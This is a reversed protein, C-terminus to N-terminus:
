GGLIAPLLNGRNFLFLSGVMLSFVATMLGLALFVRSNKKVKAYGLVSFISVLTNSIMLGLVFIVLLIIAFFSHNMGAATVFLLVQTPTEAGIGHIIGVVFAAKLTNKGHDHQLQDHEYKHPIKNHLFLSLKNIAEFILM